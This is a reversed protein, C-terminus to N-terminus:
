RSLRFNILFSVWFSQPKGQEMVPKFRFQRVADVSAKEFSELGYVKRVWAEQVLGREDIYVEVLVYGEKRLTMADEPYVPQVMELIVYDERYPVDTHSPYTRFFDEGPVEDYEEEIEKQPATSIEPDEEEIEEEEESVVEVKQTVQDRREETFIEAERGRDDIITIEPLLQMPGEYGISFFKHMVRTREATLLVLSLVLLALPVTLVLRKARSRDYQVIRGMM